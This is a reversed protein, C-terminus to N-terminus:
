IFTSSSFATQHLRPPTVPFNFFAVSHAAGAPIVSPCRQSDSRTILAKVKAGGDYYKHPKWCLIAPSSTAKTFDAAKTIRLQCYSNYKQEPFLSSNWKWYNDPENLTSHESNGALFSPNRVLSFARKFFYM